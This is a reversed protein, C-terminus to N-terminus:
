RDRGFWREVADRSFEAVVPRGHPCAGATEAADLQQLLAYAECRNIVDGGRVSAHCALRATVHDIREDFRERWGAVVPEAAIDKIVGIADLSSLVGPVGHVEVTEGDVQAIEFALERLAEEQELLWVVQEATLRVREPILLKQVVLDRKARAERLKNYNVREHAAHMDVVVLRNDIECVLYCGLLQGIYRLDQYRFDRNAVDKTSSEYAVPPVSAVFFSPQFSKPALHEAVSASNAIPVSQKVASVQVAPAPIPWEFRSVPAPHAPDTGNSAPVSSPVFPPVFAARPFGRQPPPADEPQASVVSPSASMMPRKISRVGALVAGRVVAFVQDPHRFRVESKQPHVNVDVYEPPMTLSLYGIPFERDKLMSDYGERAARLIVKDSVLRGNILIVFGSADSLAQGPHGIMGQVRVGGERLSIPTLDGPFVHAGRAQISDVVPLNLIEDGDSVLRYRVHPRSLASHAVWSRIRSVESRPSKLFKRRAPTNFFLHEVEMETGENWAVSQVDVLKGGRFTIVTGIGADKSRTTLRIKSVAAISALAEGRFGMTTLTNLDEISTVKSTAHREFALLAEDRTMGCGNDRVRIRNHGGSELAIFIDTAGADVANDVLERVVSAPREVVEGAAIQNIVVDALVKIKM